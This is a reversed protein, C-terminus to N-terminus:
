VLNITIDTGDVTVSQGTAVGDVYVNYLFSLATGGGGGSSGSIPVNCNDYTFTQIIALSLVWGSYRGDFGETFPSLTHTLSIDGTDGLASSKDLYALLDLCVQKMQSLSFTENIEDHRVQDYIYIEYNDTITQDDIDTDGIIVNMAPCVTGSSNIEWTDGVGFSHIQYHNNAFNRLLTIHQNLTKM